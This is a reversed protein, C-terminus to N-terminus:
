FNDNEKLLRLKMCLKMRKAPLSFKDKHTSYGLPISMFQRKLTEVFCLLSLVRSTPRGKLTELGTESNQVSASIGKFIVSGLYGPM